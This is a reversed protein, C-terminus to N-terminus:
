CCDQHQHQDPQRHASQDGAAEELNLFNQFSSRAMSRSLSIAPMSVPTEGARV